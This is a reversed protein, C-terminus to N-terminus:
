DRPISPEACPDCLAVGLAIMAGGIFAPRTAEALRRGAWPGGAKQFDTFIKIEAIRMIELVQAGVLIGLAETSAPAARSKGTTELWDGKRRGARSPRRDISM